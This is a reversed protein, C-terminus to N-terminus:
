CNDYLFLHRCLLLTSASLLVDEGHTQPAHREGSRGRAGPADGFRASGRERGSRCWRQRRSRGHRPAFVAGLSLVERGARVKGRQAGGSNGRPGGM